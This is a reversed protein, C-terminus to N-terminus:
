VSASDRVEPGAPDDALFEGFHTDQAVVEGFGFTRSVRLAQKFVQNEKASSSCPNM